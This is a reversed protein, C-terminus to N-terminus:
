NMRTSCMKDSENKRCLIKTTPHTHTHQFVCLTTFFFICMRVCVTEGVSLRLQSSFSFMFVSRLRFIMQSDVASNGFFNKYYERQLLLLQLLPQRQHHHHTENDDGDIITTTTTKTEKPDCVSFVTKHM